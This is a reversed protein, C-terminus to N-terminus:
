VNFFMELNNPGTLVVCRNSMWNFRTKQVIDMLSCVADQRKGLVFARFLRMQGVMASPGIHPVGFGSGETDQSNLDQNSYSLNPGLAGMLSNLFGGGTAQWFRVVNEELSYSVILRGDPSFAAATVPM